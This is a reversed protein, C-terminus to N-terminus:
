FEWSFNEPHELFWLEKLTAPVSCGDGVGSIEVSVGLSAVSGPCVERRSDPTPRDEVGGGPPYWVNGATPM